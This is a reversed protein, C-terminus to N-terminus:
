SVNPELLKLRGKYGFDKRAKRLKTAMMDRVKKSTKKDKMHTYTAILTALSAGKLASAGITIYAKKRGKKEEKKEKRAKYAGYGAGVAAGAGVKALSRLARDRIRKNMAEQFTRKM